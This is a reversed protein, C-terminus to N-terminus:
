VNGTPNKGTYIQIGRTISYYFLIGETKDIGNQIGHVLFCFGTRRAKHMDLICKTKVECSTSPM